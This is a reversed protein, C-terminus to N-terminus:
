GEREMVVVSFLNCKKADGEGAWSGRRGAAATKCVCKGAGQVVRAVVKDHPPIYTHKHM